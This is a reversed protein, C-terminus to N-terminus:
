QLVAVDIVMTIQNKVHHFLVHVVFRLVLYADDNFVFLGGNPFGILYSM